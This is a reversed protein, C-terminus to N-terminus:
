RDRYISKEAERVDIMSKTLLNIIEVNEKEGIACDSSLDGDLYTRITWSKLRADYYIETKNM